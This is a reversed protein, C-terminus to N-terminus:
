SPNCKEMVASCITLGPGFALSIIPTKPPVRADDLIAKWIHPLTASSMNGYNNLIAYSHELQKDKLQLLKKVYHLIKPGGPHVAFLAESLIKEPFRTAKKCLRHLSGDLARIIQVP